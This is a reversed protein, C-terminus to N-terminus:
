CEVGELHLLTKNVGEENGVEGRHVASIWGGWSEQENKFVVVSFVKVKFSQCRMGLQFSLLDM